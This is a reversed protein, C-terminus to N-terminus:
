QRTVGRVRWFARPDGALQQSVPNQIKMASRPQGIALGFIDIMGQIILGLQADLIIQPTIGSPAVLASVTGLQPSFTLLAQTAAVGLPALSATGSQASLAMAASTGQVDIPLLALDGDQSALVVTAVEAIGALSIVPAPSSLTIEAPAAIATQSSVGIAGLAGGGDVLAFAVDIHLGAATLSGGGPFSASGLAVRQGSASLSGGGVCSASGQAIRIGTSAVTGGGSISSTAGTVIWESNTFSSWTTRVATADATAVWAGNVSISTAAYDYYLGVLGSTANRLPDNTSYVGNAVAANSGGVLGFTSADGSNSPWAPEQQGNVWWKGTVWLDGSPLVRVRIASANLTTIANTAGTTFAVSTANTTSGDDTVAYVFANGKGYQDVTVATALWYKSSGSTVYRAVLGHYPGYNSTSGSQVARVESSQYAPQISSNAIRLFIYDRAATYTDSTSSDLIELGIAAWAATATSFNATMTRQTKITAQTAPPIRKIAAVGNGPTGYSGSSLFTSDSSNATMAFNQAHSCFMLPLSSYRQLNNTLTVTPQGSAGSALTTNATRVANAGNSTQDVGRLWVVQSTGGTAQTAIIASTSTDYIDVAINGVTSSSAVCRFVSLTYYVAGVNYSTSTVLTYTQNLWGGTCASAAIQHYHAATWSTTVFVLNLTGTGATPYYQSFTYRGATSAATTYVGGGNAADVALNHTAEIYGNSSGDVFSTPGSVITAPDVTPSSTYLSAWTDGNTLAPWSAGASGAWSASRVTM